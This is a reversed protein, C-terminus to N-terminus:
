PAFWYSLKVLLRDTADAGFLGSVDRSFLFRGDPGSGTQGRSWVVFLASGPRYEWRLVVNSRFQRVNFDPNGFGFESGGDGDLDVTYADTAPDFAIQNAGYPRFREAFAAATPDAVDAFATYNGASVFPQAYVQLSLDPTFTVGLRTTLSVTTQELRGRVYHTGGPGARNAVFQVPEAYHTVGPGLTVDVQNSPRITLTARGALDRRDRDAATLWEGYVTGSVVRRRDSFGEAWRGLEAGQYLAPGGRLEDDNLRAFDYWYGFAGGWQNHFRFNVWSNFGTWSRQGGFNRNHWHAVNVRWSRFLPGPTFQDYWGHVFYQIRDARGVFGLDNVEFGPSRNITEGYFRWKGQLKQLRASAAWGSLSTRAPDYTVHDADPRNFRHVPSRQIADIAAPAGSVRSAFVSGAVEWRGAAFRHRWDIGGAYASSTLFDLAGGAPLRRHTTTALVGLASQGGRFDRAVRAIGFNTFPEATVADQVGPAAVFRTEERATAADFLGVSWGDATKGTLKAAGLITTADPTASHLADDPPGGRPARGIRRTHVVAPFNPFAPRFIEAGELFFPRREDFFTEFGSLNVVSPDAEVQGFDPNLTVSLTFDSTVGYKLDAGATTTTAHASHFPDDPAGPARTVGALTYPLMELRRRPELGQLGTLDGARSVFQGGGAPVPSWDSVEDVRATTRRFNVGWAQAGAGAASFRLQSLPIRFEASWGLSDVSVAVDWVANWGPDENTDHSYQADLKVGRPNVGFSFGTRRDHYSDVLVHFWDSFVPDDRRALRGVIAAPATDFLRAGVYLADDDYLIRVETRQSAPAGPRPQFQVFDRAVDAAAWSADDLRGDIAPPEAVRRAALTPRLGTDGTPATAADTNQQAAVPAAVLLTVAAAFAAPPRVIRM